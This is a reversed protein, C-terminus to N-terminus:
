KKGELKRESAGELMAWIYNSAVGVYEMLGGEIVAEGIDDRSLGCGAHRLGIAIISIVDEVSWSVQGKAQTELMMGLPDGVEQAVDRSAKYTAPMHWGQGNIKCEVTKAM